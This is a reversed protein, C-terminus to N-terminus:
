GRGLQQQIFNFAVSGSKYIYTLNTGTPIPTTCKCPPSFFIFCDFHHVRFSPPLITTM